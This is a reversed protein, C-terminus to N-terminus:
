RYIRGEAECMVFYKFHSPNLRALNIFCKPLTFLPGM